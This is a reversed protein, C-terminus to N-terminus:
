EVGDVVVVVVSIGVAVVAGVGNIVVILDVVVVCDIVVVDDVVMVGIIGVVRYVVDVGNEEVRVVFIGFVVVVIVIM